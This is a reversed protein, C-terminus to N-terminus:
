RRETWFVDALLGDLEAKSEDPLLLRNQAVALEDAPTETGDAYTRDWLRQPDEREHVPVFLYHPEPISTESNILTVNRAETLVGKMHQRLRKIVKALAAVAPDPLDDWQVVEKGPIPHRVILMTQGPNISYDDLIWLVRPLPLDSQAPDHGQDPTFEYLRYHPKEGTFIPM